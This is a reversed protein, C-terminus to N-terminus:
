AVLEGALNYIRARVSVAAAPNYALALGNRLDAEGAPQVGLIRPAAEFEDPAALVQVQRVVKQSGGASADMLLVISYVGPGVVLGNSNRGDWSWAQSSGSGDRLLGDLKSLALGAADFSPAFSSQLLSLDSVTFTLSRFSQEFVLEGA